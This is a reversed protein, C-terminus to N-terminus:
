FCFFLSARQLRTEPTGCMQESNVENARKFAKRNIRLTAYAQSLGKQFFQSTPSQLHSPSSSGGGGKKEIKKKTVSRFRQFLSSCKINWEESMQSESEM